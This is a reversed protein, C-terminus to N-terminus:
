YLVRHVFIPPINSVEIYCNLLMRVLVRETYKYYLANYWVQFIIQLKNEKNVTSCKIISNQIGKSLFVLEKKFTEFNGYRLIWQNILIEILYLYNTILLVLVAIVTSKSLAKIRTDSLDFVCMGTYICLPWQLIIIQFCMCVAEIM